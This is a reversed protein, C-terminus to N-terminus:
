KLLMMKKTAVFNQGNGESIIRYFYTGSSLSSGNFSVTYYGAPKVENVLKSVERGSIDYLIISVKGDVPIDYNITTAPNFPNPYNQSLDFKVPLGINVESNLNFYAYQGNYDIQKLRYNYKGSALNRDNYGYNSLSATTGNGNVFGVKTWQSNESSREIEFGSNNTETATTWSLNVDRRNVSSTFSTLEVPLPSDGDTLIFRSFGTLGYVTINHNAVDLQYEGPGTGQVNFPVYITDNGNNKAVKILNENAITGILAPSYHLTVNYTYGSNAANTPYIDWYVNGFGSLVSPHPLGPPNEGSFYQANLDALTGLATVNVTAMTDQQHIFKYVGPAATANTYVPPMVSVPFEYAGIDTGGDAVSTSRPNGDIDTGITNIAIGNGKLTWSNPDAGNPLLNTNSTFGPNGALTFADGGSLAQFGSLDSVAAGWQTMTANNLSYLANYNSATAPWGTSSGENALAINAGTGTTTRSNSFVNNMINLITEVYSIRSFGYTNNSGSSAGYINVSNYYYNCTVGYGSQDSIGIIIRDSPASGGDLSVTNNFYTAEANLENSFGFVYDANFGTSPSSAYLGSVRNNSVMTGPLSKVIHIGRVFNNNGPSPVIALNGLNTVTNRDVTNIGNVFVFLGIVQTSSGFFGGTPSSSNTMNTVENDNVICSGSNSSELYIGYISFGEETFANNFNNVTNNSVNTFTQTRSVIGQSYPAADLRENVNSSGITNEKIVGTGNELYVGYCGNADAFTCRINKVTNGTIFTTDADGASVYIGYWTSSTSMFSGGANPATGGISNNIIHHGSGGRIFIYRVTTTVAGTQYFSSPNIIWGDGAGVDDVYVGANTMNFINCGSIKNHSNELGTTGYSFIANTPVGAVDSRDRVDCGSIVNYSNGTLGASSSFFVTGLAYSTTQGEIICSRLTDYSAGNIFRITAGDGTNRITLDKSSSGNNSGDFTVNDANNLDILADANAGSIVATVAPAPKIILSSWDNSNLAKDGTETLADSNITIVVNNGTQAFSNIANFAGEIDTLSTYNGNAGTSGSVTIQTISLQSQAANSSLVLVSLLFSFYILKKM